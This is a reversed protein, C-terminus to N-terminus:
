ILVQRGTSSLSFTQRRHKELIIKTRAMSIVRKLIFYEPNSKEVNRAMRDIMGALKMKYMICRKVDCLDAQSTKTSDSM